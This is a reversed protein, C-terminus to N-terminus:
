MFYALSRLFSYASARWSSVDPDRKTHPVPSMPWSPRPSSTDSFDRGKGRDRPWNGTMVIAHPPMCESATVWSPFTHDHPTFSSPARPLCTVLELVCRLPWAAAGEPPSGSLSGPGTVSPRGAMSGTTATLAPSLWETASVLPPSTYAHPVKLSALPSQFNSGLVLIQELGARTSRLDAAPDATTCIAEPASWTSARVEAPWTNEHPHPSRPRRPRSASSWHSPRLFAPESHGLSSVGAGIVSPRLPALMTLTPHQANEDNAIAFSPFTYPHPM